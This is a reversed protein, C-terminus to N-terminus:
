SNEGRKKRPATVEVVKAVIESHRDLAATNHEIVQATKSHLAKLEDSRQTHVAIIQKYLTYVVVGLCLIVIGPLGMSTLQSTISTATTAEM